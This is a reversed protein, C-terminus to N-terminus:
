WRRYIGHAYMDWEAARRNILGRMVKGQSRNWSKWAAELNHYSASKFGPNEIMKRVTSHRFGDEGINYALIVCADFQNQELKRDIERVVGEFPRLDDNFLDEAQQRTIGGAYKSWERQSILHGYGITAGKCWVSTPKGTQDDYPTLHLKEIDKLLQRGKESLHM